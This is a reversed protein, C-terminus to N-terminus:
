FLKINVFLFYNIKAKLVAKKALLCEDAFVRDSTVRQM